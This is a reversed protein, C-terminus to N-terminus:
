DCCSYCSEALIGTTSTSNIVYKGLSGMWSCFCDLGHGRSEHDRYGNGGRGRDLIEKNLVSRWLVLLGFLCSIGPTFRSAMLVVM